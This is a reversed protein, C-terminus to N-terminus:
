SSRGGTDGTSEHQKLAGEPAREVVVARVLDIVEDWSAPVPAAADRHRGALELVATVDGATVASRGQDGRTDM